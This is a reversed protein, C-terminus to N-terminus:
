VAFVPQSLVSLPKQELTFEGYAIESASFQQPLPFSYFSLEKRKSIGKLCNLGLNVAGSCMSPPEANSGIQM